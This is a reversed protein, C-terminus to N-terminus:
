TQVSKVEALEAFMSLFCPTTIALAGDKCLHEKEIDLMNTSLDCM